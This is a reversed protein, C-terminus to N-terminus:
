KKLEVLVVKKLDQQCTPCKGPESGVFKCTVDQYTVAFKRLPPNGKCSPCKGAKESTMGCIKCKFTFSRYKKELAIGHTPCKGAKPFEKEDKPCVFYEEQIVDVDVRKQGAPLPPLKSSAPPVVPKVPAVSTVKSVATSKATNTPVNKKNTVTATSTSTGTGSKGLDFKKILPKIQANSQIAFSFVVLLTFLTARKM